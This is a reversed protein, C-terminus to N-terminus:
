YEDLKTAEFGVLAKSNKLAFRAHQAQAEAAFSTSDAFRSALIAHVVTWRACRATPTRQRYGAIWTPPDM